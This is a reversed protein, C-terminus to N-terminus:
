LTKQTGRLGSLVDALTEAQAPTLARASGGFPIPASMHQERSPHGLVALPRGVPLLQSLDAPRPVAANRLERRAAGVSGVDMQRQVRRDRGRRTSVGSVRHVREADM